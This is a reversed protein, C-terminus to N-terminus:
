VDKFNAEKVKKKIKRKVAQADVAMPNMFVTCWVVLGFCWLLLLTSLSPLNSDVSADAPGVAAGGPPQLMRDTSSVIQGVSGNSHVAIGVLPSAYQVDVQEYYILKTRLPYEPQPDLDDPNEHLNATPSIKADYPVYTVQGCAKGKNGTKSIGSVGTFDLLQQVTRRKGIGYIGMNAQAKHTTLGGELSVLTKVRQLAEKRFRERQRQFWENNGHGNEQTGYNHYAIISTPTYVDYRRRISFPTLIAITVRASGVGNQVYGRTWFRAFRSFQEIPQAFWAFPDYPASEELHCKAFSFAASWTYALLPADLGTVGGAEDFVEYDQVCLFVLDLCFHSHSATCRLAPLAQRCPRVPFGNDRFYVRCQRPVKSSAEEKVALRPPVHSIVAFENRTQKWESKALEDWNPAFDSHADVQMCYEENGLVKRSLSRAWMPGKAAYHHLGVLRVQEYHPCKARESPLTVIKNVDERVKVRKIAKVGYSECYAELCFKDLPDNQEVLGVFVKDPDKANEFLNKLTEGCREGDARSGPPLTSPILPSGPKLVIFWTTPVSRTTGGLLLWPHDPTLM